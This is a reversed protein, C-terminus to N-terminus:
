LNCIRLREVSSFLIGSRCINEVFVAKLDTAVRDVKGVYINGLISPVAMNHVNLDVLRNEEILAVSQLKESFPMQTIVLKSM